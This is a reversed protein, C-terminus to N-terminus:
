VVFFYFLCSPFVSIHLVLSIHRLPTPILARKQYINYFISFYTLYSLLMVAPNHTMFYAYMNFARRGEEGSKFLQLNGILHGVLFLCLFLGTLAMYYKKALSSKIFVSKSM